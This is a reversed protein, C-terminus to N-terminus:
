HTNHLFHASKYTKVYQRVIDQWDFCRASEVCRNVHKKLSLLKIGRAINDIDEPYVGYGCAEDEVWGDFGQGKTYVVPTGQSLAEAYVLGFTERHSPMVFVDAWRYHESLQNKDKCFPFTEIWDMGISYLFDRENKAGVLHLEVLSGEGKLIKCANIISRINKNKTFGGVFLVRVVSHDKKSMPPRNLLWYPDLGNPITYIHNKETQNNLKLRHIMKDRYSSGLFCVAKANQAIQRAYGHLHPFYKWFVNLDTNRFSVIYPINYKRNIEYALAGDSFLTHAHIVSDKFNIKQLQIESIGKKIKRRFFIRDFANQYGSFIYEVNEIKHPRSIDHYKKHPVFVSQNIEYKSLERFLNNYLSTAILNCNIHFINFKM